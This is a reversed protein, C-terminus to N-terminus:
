DHRRFFQCVRLSQTWGLIARELAVPSLRSFVRRYTQMSPLTEPLELFSRLWSEKRAVYAVVGWWDEAGSIVAFLAMTILSVLPYRINRGRPDPVDKFISVITGQVQADM